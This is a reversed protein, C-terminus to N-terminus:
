LDAKGQERFVRGDTGSGRCRRYGSDWGYLSRNERDKKEARKRIKLIHSQTDYVVQPYQERILEYQHMSARTGSVEGNEEQAKGFIKLLHEDSKGSCFIM